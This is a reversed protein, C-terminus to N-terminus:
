QVLFEAYNENGKEGVFEHLLTEEIYIHEPLFRVRYKGLGIFTFIDKRDAKNAALRSNIDDMIRSLYVQGQIEGDKIIEISRQEVPAYKRRIAFKLLNRFQTAKGGFDIQESHIGKSPINLEILSWDLFRISMESPTPTEALEIVWSTALVLCIFILTIKSTVRLLEVYLNASEVGPLIEPLQAIFLLLIALVSFFAIRELHREKFTKYFSYMLLYSLLVSFLIDPISSWHFDSGSDFDLLIFLVFSIGSIFVFGLILRFVNKTNHYLFAPAHDFHFLALVFFLSNFLSFFVLLGQYVIPNNSGWFIMVIGKVVWVLIALSLYLLGKDIRKQTEDEDLKRQFRLRINNWLLLLLLAGVTSIIVETLQYFYHVSIPSTM